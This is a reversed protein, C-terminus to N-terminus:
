SQTKPLSAAMLQALHLVRIDSGSQHLGDRLQMLCSPCGTVVTDAGTSRIDNTKRSIIKLTLDYHVLSFSGASGCCQGPAAMEQFELGPIARILDRPQSKVGQGRSLHCSDHYTVRGTGPALPAELGISVLYQAFDQIKDSLAKARESMAPDSGFWELYEHKLTNGCSGCLTIVADVPAKEFCALTARALERATGGDGNAYAPLCCCHQGPPIVVTIGQHRLVALAAEGIEPYVHNVMCGTFLAVRGRADPAELVVPVRSRLPRPALSPVLRKLDLGMPLRPLSGQPTRRFLVRQGASGLRVGAEFVWKHKLFFRLILRKLLPLGQEEALRQRAALVLQDGAVGSPCNASCAKCALCLSMRDSLVAPDEIWGRSASRILGIKGRTAAAETGLEQYIPCVQQCAGCRSCRVVDAELDKWNM